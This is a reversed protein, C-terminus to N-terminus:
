PWRSCGDSETGGGAFGVQHILDISEQMKKWKESDKKAEVETADLM